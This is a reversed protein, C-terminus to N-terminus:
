DRAAPRQGGGGTHPAFFRQGSGRKIEFSDLVAGSCNSWGCQHFHWALTHPGQIHLVGFGTESSRAASGKFPRKRFPEAGRGSGGVTVHVIGAPDHYPDKPDVPATPEFNYMPLSREYHHFHGWFAIDVHSDNLLREFNFPYLTDVGPYRQPGSRSNVRGPSNRFRASTYMPQHAITVVWPVTDRNNNARQLDARLWHWVAPLVGAVKWLETSFAAVHVPGIDASWWLRAGEPTGDSMPRDWGPMAFRGAVDRAQEWDRADHDGAAVMYPLSATVPQMVRLYRDGTAGQRSRLSYAIDGAHLVADVRDEAALAALAPALVPTPFGLDAVVALRVPWDHGGPLTRLPVFPGRGLPRVAYWRGPDLGQLPAHATVLPRKRRTSSAGGARVVAATKDSGPLGHQWQGDADDPIPLFHLWATGNEAPPPQAWSVVLGAQPSSGVAIRVQEAGDTCDAASPDSCGVPGPLARGDAATRLILAQSLAGDGPLMCCGPGWHFDGCRFIYAAGSELSGEPMTARVEWTEDCGWYSSGSKGRHWFCAEPRTVNRMEWVTTAVAGADPGAAPVPASLAVTGPAAPRRAVCYPRRPQRSALWVFAASGPGAGPRVRVERPAESDWVVAEVAAAEEKEAEATLPPPPRRLDSGPDDQHAQAATARRYPGTLHLPIGAAVAARSASTGCSVRHVVALLTVLLAAGRM